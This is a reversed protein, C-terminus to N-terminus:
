HIGVIGDLLNGCFASKIGQLIEAPLKKLPGTFSRLFVPLMRVDGKLLRQIM